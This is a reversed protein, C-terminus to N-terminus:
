PIRFVLPVRFRFEMGPLDDPAPGFHGRRATEQAADDLLASGSSRVLAAHQLAGDRSLTLELVAEGGLGADQAAAPYFRRRLLEARIDSAYRRLLRGNQGSQPGPAPALSALSAPSPPRSHDQQLSRPPQPLAQGVLGPWPPDATGPAALATPAALIEPHAPRRALAVPAAPAATSAPPATVFTAAATQVVSRSAAPLTADPAVTAPATPAPLLQPREPRWALADPAAPAVRRTPPTPDVERTSPRQKVAGDVAPIGAIQTPGAPAAPAQTWQEVLASQAAGGSLLITSVAAAPPVPTSGWPDLLMALALHSGLSAAFAGLLAPRVTM